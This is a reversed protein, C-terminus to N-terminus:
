ELRVSVCPCFFEHLLKGRGGGAVMVPIDRDSTEALLDRLSIVDYPAALLDAPGGIGLTTHKKMPEDFLLDGSFNDARFIEKLKDRYEAM